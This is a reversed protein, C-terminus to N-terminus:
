FNVAAFIVPQCIFTQGAHHRTARPVTLGYYGAMADPEHFTFHGGADSKTTGVLTRSGSASAGYSWLSIPRDDVCWSNPSDLTGIFDGTGDDHVLSATGKVTRTHHKKGLAPSGIVAFSVIAIALCAAIATRIRGTGM